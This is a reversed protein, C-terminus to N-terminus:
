FPSPMYLPTPVPARHQLANLGAKLDQHLAAIARVVHEQANTNTANALQAGTVTGAGISAGSGKYLREKESRDLRHDDAFTGINAANAAEWEEAGERILRNYEQLWKVRREEPLTSGDSRAQALKLENELALNERRVEAERELQKVRAEDEFEKRSADVRAESQPLKAVEGKDFEVRSNAKDLAAKPGTEYYDISAEADRQLRARKEKAEQENLKDLELDRNLDAAAKAKERAEHTPLDQLSGISARYEREIKERKAADTSGYLEEFGEQAQGIKKDGIASAIKAQQDRAAISEDVSEAISNLNGKQGFLPAIEDWAGEFADVIAAKLDGGFTQSDVVSAANKDFDNGANLAANLEQTAQTVAKLKEQLSALSNFDGNVPSLAESLVQKLHVAQAITDGIFSAAMGVGLIGLGAGVGLGLAPGLRGAEFGLARLPSVGAASADAISRIAHELMMTRMSANMAGGEAHGMVEKVASGASGTANSVAAAAKGVEAVAGTVKQADALDALLKIKLELANNSM